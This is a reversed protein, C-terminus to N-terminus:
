IIGIGALQEALESNNEEASQKYATWADEAWIEMRNFLGTVIVNKKIGAYERLFQPVSIRGQKDLLEESAGAFMLRVFSRASAQTLPLKQLQEALKQWEADTFVFLCNDLGRTIILGKELENRFKKPVAIRGKEDISHSYEGLFV